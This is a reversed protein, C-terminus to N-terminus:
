KESTITMVPLTVFVHLLIFINPYFNKDCQGLADRVTPPPIRSTTENSYHSWEKLEVEMIVCKCKHLDMNYFRVLKLFGEIQYKVLERECPLLLSITDTIDQYMVFRDNLQSIINNNFPIFISRSYYEKVSQAPM